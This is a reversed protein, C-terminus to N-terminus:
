HYKIANWVVFHISHQDPWINARDYAKYMNHCECKRKECEQRAWALTHSGKRVMMVWRGDINTEYAFQTQMWYRAPPPLIHSLAPLFFILYFSFNIHSLVVAVAVYFVVVVSWHWKNPNSNNHLIYVCLSCFKCQIYAFFFYLLAVIRGVYLNTETEKKRSIFVSVACRKIRTIFVLLYQKWSKIRGNLQNEHCSIDLILIQTHADRWIM